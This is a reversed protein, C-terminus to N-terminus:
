SISGKCTLPSTYSRILPPPAGRKWSYGRCDPPQAESSIGRASDDAAPRWRYTL